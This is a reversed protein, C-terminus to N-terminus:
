TAKHFVSALGKVKIVVDLNEFDIGGRGFYLLRVSHHGLALALIGGLIALKKRSLNVPWTHWGAPHFGLSIERKNPAQGCPTTTRFRIVAVPLTRM